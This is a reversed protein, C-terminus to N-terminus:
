LTLPSLNYGQVLTLCLSSCYMVDGLLLILGVLECIVESLSLVPAVATLGLGLLM